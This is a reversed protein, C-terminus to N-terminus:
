KEGDLEKLEAQMEELLNLIAQGEFVSLQINQSPSLGAIKQRMSKAAAALEQRDIDCQFKIQM